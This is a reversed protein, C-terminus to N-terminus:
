ASVIGRDDDPHKLWTLTPMVSRESERFASNKHESRTMGVRGQISIRRYVPMARASRMGPRHCWRLASPLLARRELM